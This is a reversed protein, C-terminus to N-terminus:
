IRSPSKILKAERILSSWNPGLLIVLETAQAESIGTEKALRAIASRMAMSEIERKEPM